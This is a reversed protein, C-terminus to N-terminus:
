VNFLTQLRRRMWNLINTEQDATSVLGRAQLEQKRQILEEQRTSLERVLTKHFDPHTQLLVKFNDYIIEFLLTSEQAQVTATRPIGLMLSMEGFFNGAELIALKKNLSEAYVEVSGSLIIYFSDGPDNEHFLVEEPNLSKLRGVEIVQRLRLENLHSFSGVKKLLNRISIHPEHAIAKRGHINQIDDADLSGKSNEQPETKVPKRPAKRGILEPNKIWLDQQPFPIQIDNQRFKYEITFRLSSLIEHQVGMQDSQIWVWLEFDLSSDGFGTFIVQPSPVQLINHETYAAVLLVETVLTTDSGYAVNIPLKLRVDSTEYHFNFVQNEVFHSNPVIVSSGDKQKVVIARTSIEQVFGQLDNLQIFDGTKIKRETLLTLGSIFNKLFDQFGLGLGIGLGGGVVALVSIDFGTTQLILLLLFFGFGYSVLNAVVYRSGQDLIVKKLGQNKLFRSLYNSLVFTVFIFFLLQIVEDLSISTRGVQFQITKVLKLLDVLFDIM